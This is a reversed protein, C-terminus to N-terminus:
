WTEEHVLEELPLRKRGERPQEDAAPYGFAVAVAVVYDKPLGLVEGALRTDQLGIPCSYIGQAWAALMMNQAARGVDFDRSDQKRVIVIGLPAKLLAATGRGAPGLREKNPGDRLVIFRLPQSNSSSGAMRGARLIRQVAEDAIPRSDYERRDRKSFIAQYADM